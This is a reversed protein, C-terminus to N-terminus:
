KLPVSPAAFAQSRYSTRDRFDPRCSFPHTDTHKHQVLRARWRTGVHSQKGAPTCIPLHEGVAAVQVYFLRLLINGDETTNTEMLTKAKNEGLKNLLLIAGNLIIALLGGWTASNVKWAICKGVTTKQQLPVWSQLSWPWHQRGQKCRSRNLAYM